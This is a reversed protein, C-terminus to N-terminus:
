PNLRQLTERLVQNDPDEQLAERWINQAREQEGLKWLVEGLHAAVEPDPFLGYAKELHALAQELNGLRYQVWGMSDIIAPDEPETDLAQQIYELAKEYENSNNTLMYGLANLARADDPDRQLIAKLDQQAADFRGLKEYVLSRGYLLDPDYPSEELAKNYLQLADEYNSADFLLEAESMYLRDALEPHTKRLEALEARAGALDGQRYLARAALVSAEFSHSGSKVRLYWKRAEVHNERITAISGLYYAADNRRKNSQYLHVFAREAREAQNLSLALLGLGYRADENGPQLALVREFEDAAERTYKADLLLRAFQLHHNARDAKSGDIDAVLGSAEEVEDQRVLVGARLLVAESWDPKLALARQISHNALALKEYRLALLGQAYHAQALSPHEAVLAQMVQLAVDAQEPEGSLVDALEKFGGAIGNSHQQIVARAHITLAEADGNRLALRAATKQADASDPAAATWARSAKYALEPEGAFLAVRAARQALEASDSYDLAAVYERAAVERNGRQVALEGALIHYELAVNPDQQVATTDIRTAAGDGLPPVVREAACGALLLIATGPILCVARQTHKFLLYVMALVAITSYQADGCRTVGCSQPTELQRTIMSGM